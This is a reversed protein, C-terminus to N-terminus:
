PTKIERDDRDHGPSTEKLNLLLGAAVGSSGRPLLAYGHMYPLTPYMYLYLTGYSISVM